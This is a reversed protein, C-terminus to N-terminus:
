SLLCMAVVIANPLVLTAGLATLVALLWYGATTGGALSSAIALGTLAVTKVTLWEGGSLANVVPNTEPNGPCVRQGLLTLAIDVPGHLVFAAVALSNYSPARLRRQPIPAQPNQERPSM